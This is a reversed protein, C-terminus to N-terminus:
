RCRRRVSPRCSPASTPPSTARTTRPPSALRRGARRRGVHARLARGGRHPERQAPAGRRARQLRVPQRHRPAPTTGSSRRTAGGSAPSPGLASARGRASPRSARLPWGLVAHRGGRRGEHRVAWTRRRWRRRVCTTRSAWTSSARGQGHRLRLRGARARDGRVARRAPPESGDGRDTRLADFLHGVVIPRWAWPSRTSWSCGPGPWSRGPWRWCRSSAERCAARRRACAPARAGPVARDGRRDSRRGGDRRRRRGRGRRWRSTRACPRPQPLHGPGRARPRHGHPRHPLGAGRDIRRGFSTITGREARM